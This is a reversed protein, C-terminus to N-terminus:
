SARQRRFVGVGAHIDESVVHSLHLGHARLIGEIEEKTAVWRHWEIVVSESLDLIEPITKLVQAEFGEVDVKLLDIRRDGAHAKWADLLDITPVVVKVTKGKAPVNPNEIPQASSAVNSANLYFTAEKTGKPYGVLGHHVKSGTLGNHEVHWRSEKAMSENADVVLGILDKSGAREAAYCPFYGVNSGLDIFTRVDRGDFAAKYVEHRFIEDALLVSELHQIRYEIGLKPLRRRIPRLSLGAKALAQLRLVAIARHVTPRDALWRLWSKATPEKTTSATHM